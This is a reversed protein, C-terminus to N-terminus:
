PPMYISRNRETTQVRELVVCSLHNEDGTITYIHYSRKKKQCFIHYSRFLAYNWKLEEIINCNFIHNGDKKM